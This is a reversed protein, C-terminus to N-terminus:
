GAVLGCAGPRDVDALEMQNWKQPKEALIVVKAVRRSL